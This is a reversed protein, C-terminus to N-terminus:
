ILIILCVALCILIALGILVGTIAKGDDSDDFQGGAYQDIDLALSNIEEDTLSNIRSEAEERSLGQGELYEVVEERDLQALVKARADQSGLATGTDLIEGWSLSPLTMASLVMIVILFVPRFLKM